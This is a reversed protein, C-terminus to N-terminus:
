KGGLVSVAAKRLDMSQVDKCRLDQKKQRPGAVSTQFNAWLECGPSGIFPDTRLVHEAPLDDLPLDDLVLWQSPSNEDVWAMIEAKGFSWCEVFHLNVDVKFMDSRSCLISMVLSSIHHSGILRPEARSCGKPTDGLIQVELQQLASYAEQRLKASLRRRLTWCLLASLWSLFRNM